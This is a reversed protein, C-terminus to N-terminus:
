SPPLRKVDPAADPFVELSPDLPRVRAATADSAAAAGRRGTLRRWAVVGTGVTAGIVGLGLLITAGVVVLTGGVIVVGAGLALAGARSTPQIRIVRPNM